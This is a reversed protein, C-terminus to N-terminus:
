RPRAAPLVVCEQRDVWAVDGLDALSQHMNRYDAEATRRDVHIAVAAGGEHWTRVMSAAVHLEDHCLFVVGIRTAATM